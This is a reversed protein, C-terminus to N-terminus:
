KIRDRELLHVVYSFLADGVEALTKMGDIHLEPHKPAEYPTHVVPYNQYIGEDAKAWREPVRQRAVPVPVELYIEHFSGCVQRALERYEAQPSCTPVFTIYGMKNLRNAFAAMKTINKKRGEASHDTNAEVQGWVDGDIVVCKQGWEMILKRETIYSLITKGAGPIGTVWLTHM